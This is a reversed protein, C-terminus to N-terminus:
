RLVVEIRTGHGHSSAIEFSGGLAEIRERMSKIGFGPAPRTYVDLPDFGVGDDTVVLEPHGPGSLTVQVTSARGHRAANSVAECTVRLVADRAERDLEVHEDLQLEVRTNRGSRAAVEEVAQTMVTHLPEDLPRTLAAIARRSEDLARDASAQIKGAAPVGNGGGRALRSIYALEQALGDHLDRAIRRREELVAAESMRQWYSSIESAAGVLLLLYSLLRLLDSVYIWQTYLSPYLFFDLRAVTAAVAGAAFWSLMADGEPRRILGIAATAFAVMTALQIMAVAPHSITPPEGITPRHVPVANPAIDSAVAAVSLVLAMSTLVAFMAARRPRTLVVGPSFTAFALSTAGLLQGSMTLWLSTSSPRGSQVALPLASFLLNSVALIGLASTLLLDDFRHSRVYRGAVLFTALLGVLAATVELAIHLGPERYAFRVWPVTVAAVTVAVCIAMTVVVASRHPPPHMLGVGRAPSSGENSLVIKRDSQNSFLTRLEIESRM